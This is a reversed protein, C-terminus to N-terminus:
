CKGIQEAIRRCRDMHRCQVTINIESLENGGYVKETHSVPDFEECGFCYPEMELEIIGEPRIRNIYGLSKLPGGGCNSSRAGDEFGANLIYEKGCNVCMVKLYEKRM